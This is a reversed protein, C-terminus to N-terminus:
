GGMTSAIKKGITRRVECINDNNFELALLLHLNSDIIKKKIHMYEDASFMPEDYIIDRMDKTCNM